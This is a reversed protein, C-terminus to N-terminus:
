RIREARARDSAETDNLKVHRRMLSQLNFPGVKMSVSLKM